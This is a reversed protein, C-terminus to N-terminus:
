AIYKTIRKEQGDPSVGLNDFPLFTISHLMSFKTEMTATEVALPFKYRSFSTSFVMNSRIFGHVYPNCTRSADEEVGVALPSELCSTTPFCCISSLSGETTVSAITCVRAFSVLLLFPKM